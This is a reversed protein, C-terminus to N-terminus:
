LGVWRWICASPVIMFGSPMIMSERVEQRCESESPSQEPRNTELVADIMFSRRVEFAIVGGEGGEGVM